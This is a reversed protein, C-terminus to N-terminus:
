MVISKNIVERSLNTRLYQPPYNIEYSKNGFHVLLMDMRGEFELVKNLKVITNPNKRQIKRFKKPSINMLDGRNIIM